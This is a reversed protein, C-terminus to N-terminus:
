RRCWALIGFALIIAGAPAYGLPSAQTRQQVPTTTAPQQPPASMGAEEVMFPIVTYTDDVTERDSIAAILAEAADKGQLSGPGRIRFINTGATSNGDNLKLNKVWDGSALIDIQTNQMPHQVILYCPGKPLQESLQTDGYYMFSSDANVSVMTSYLFNEGTIWIMVIRPAGEVSGRITFPQGKIVPLPTIGATVFPKRIIFSVTGYTTLDNFQDKTEPRGAAYLTYLGADLPVGSTYLTYDWTKDPKTKVVTFTGSDGSIMKQHPFSLNGGGEPLNPGTLFLFTSDSGTNMGSFVVEEGWFYSQSKQAVVSVVPKEASVPSVLVLAAGILMLLLIITGSWSPNKNATLIM